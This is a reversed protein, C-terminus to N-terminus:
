LQYELFLNLYHGKLTASNKDAAPNPFTSTPATKYEMKDTRYAYGGLTTLNKSWRYSILFGAQVSTSPVFAQGNTTKQGAILPFIHANAQLGLKPTMAHWYEVGYRLGLAAIASTNRVNGAFNTTLDPLEKYVVGATQRFEGADNPKMKFFSNVEFMNYKIDGFGDVKLTSAEAALYYGWPNKMTVYGVGARLTGGIANYTTQTGTLDYNLNQYQVSNVLYSAIGFWGSLREISERLRALAEARETRDGEKATFKLSVAESSPRYSAISKVTVRYTGGPYEKKFPMAEGRLEKGEEVVNFKQSKADMKELTYNYAQAFEPKNWKIERVFLSEPQILKPAALKKGSVVFEAVRDKEPNSTLVENAARITAMFKTAVPLEMTAKEDNLEIQKRFTSDLGQVDLTYKKGAFVKKWKFTVNQLDNNASAVISGSTPNVFEPSDLFVKFEQYESWEGPVGRKDRARIRMKFFGPSLRGAWIAEKTQFKFTNKTSKVELDYSKANEVGEWELEVNSEASLAFKPCLVAAFFFFAALILNRHTQTMM